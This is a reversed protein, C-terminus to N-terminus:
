RLALSLPYSPPSQKGMDEFVSCKPSALLVTKIQEGCLCVEAAKGSIRASSHKDKIDGYSM